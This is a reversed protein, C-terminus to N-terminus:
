KVEIDDYFKVSDYILKNKENLYKDYQEKGINLDDKKLGLEEMVYDVAM